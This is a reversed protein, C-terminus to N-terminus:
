IPWTKLALVALTKQCESITESTWNPVDAIQRTLSYPCNAFIAKKMHFGISKLGSNESARLLPSMASGIAIYSLKMTLSYLGIEKQNIQYYM